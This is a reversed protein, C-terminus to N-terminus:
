GTQGTAAPATKAFANTDAERMEAGARHNAAASSRVQIRIRWAFAASPTIGRGHRLVYRGHPRGGSLLWPRYSRDQHMRAFYYGPRNIFSIDPLVIYERWGADRRRGNTIVKGEVRKVEMIKQLGILEGAINFFNWRPLLPGARGNKGEGALPVAAPYGDCLYGFLGLEDCARVENKWLMM